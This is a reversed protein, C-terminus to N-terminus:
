SDKNFFWYEDGGIVKLLRNILNVDSDSVILEKLAPSDAIRQSVETVYKDVAKSCKTTHGSYYWNDPNSVDVLESENEALKDSTLLYRVQKVIRVNSNDRQRKLTHLVQKVSLCNAHMVKVESTKFCILLGVQVDL